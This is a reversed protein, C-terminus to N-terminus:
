GIRTHFDFNLYRRIAAGSSLSIQIEQDPFIFLLERIFSREKKRSIESSMANNSFLAAMAVFALHHLKM